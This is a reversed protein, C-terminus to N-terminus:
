CRCRLLDRTAFSHRLTHLSVPKELEAMQAAAHCARNLQRVEAITLDKLWANDGELSGINMVMCGDEGLDMMEVLEARAFIPFIRRGARGFILELYALRRSLIRIQYPRRSRATCNPIPM